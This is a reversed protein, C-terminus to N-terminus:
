AAELALHLLFVDDLLDLAVGKVQLGALFLAHLGRQSALPRALFCTFFLILATFPREKGPRSQEIQGGGLQTAAPIEFQVNRGPMNSLFYGRATRTRPPGLGHPLLLPLQVCGTNETDGGCNKGRPHARPFPSFPAM